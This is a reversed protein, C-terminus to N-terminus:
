KNKIKKRSVSKALEFEVFIMDKLIYISIYLYIGASFLISGFLFNAQSKAQGESWDCDGCNYLIHKIKVFYIPVFRFTFKYNTTGFSIQTTLHQSEETTVNQM